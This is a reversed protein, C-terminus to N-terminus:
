MPSEAPDAWQLVKEEVAGSVRADLASARKLFRTGRGAREEGADVDLNGYVDQHRSM